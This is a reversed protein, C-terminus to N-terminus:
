SNKSLLLNKINDTTAEAGDEIAIRLLKEFPRMFLEVNLLEFCYTLQTTSETENTKLLYYDRYDVTIGKFSIYVLPRYESIQFVSKVEKGQDKRLQRAKAGVVAKNGDLAEFELVDVAWKPYNEFFHEGIFSFVEAISKNIVVTAKGEVPKNTDFPLKFM